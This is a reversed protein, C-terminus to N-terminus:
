KLVMLVAPFSQHSAKLLHEYKPLAPFYERYANKVLKHFTKLDHVRLYFRLINLTITEALRLQKKARTKRGLTEPTYRLYSVAHRCQYM